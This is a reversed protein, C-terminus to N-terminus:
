EERKAMETDYQLQTIEGDNLLDDLEDDTYSYLRSVNVAETESDATETTQASDEESLYKKADSSLEVTDYRRSLTTREASTESQKPASEEVGSLKGTRAAASQAANTDITINM